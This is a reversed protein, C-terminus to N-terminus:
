GVWRWAPSPDEQYPGSIVIAFLFAPVVTAAIVYAAFLVVVSSFKALFIRRANVPFRALALCDHAPPFLTQWRLLTLVATLAMVLAVFTLLDERVGRPYFERSAQHLGNYRGMYTKLGLIALSTLAAFAGVVVKLWEGSESTIESEFPHLLFYRLLELQGGHTEELWDRIKITMVDSCGDDPWRRSGHRGSKHTLCVRRRAFVPVHACSPNAVSDHAVVQGGRLILVEQCVKEVVELVHSSFLIAKGRQALTNLISRLIMAPNADLGSFPEDLILLDPNHLLASLLLIKQRMGKSYSAIRGYRDEWLGILRLM